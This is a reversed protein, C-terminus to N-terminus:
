EPPIAFNRRHFDASKKLAKVRIPARCSSGFVRQNERHDPTGQCNRRKRKAVGDAARDVPAGRRHIPVDKRRSMLVSIRVGVTEGFPM